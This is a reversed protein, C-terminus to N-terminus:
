GPRNALARILDTQSIVGVLKGRDEVFLRHVESYLMQRAASAVDVEPGVTLAPRSM